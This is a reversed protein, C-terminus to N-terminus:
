QITENVLEKTEPAGVYRMSEAAPTSVGCVTREAICAGDGGGGPLPPVNKKAPFWRVDM